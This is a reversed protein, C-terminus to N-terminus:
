GETEERQHDNEKGHGSEEAMRNFEEGTAKEYSFHIVVEVLDPEYNKNM